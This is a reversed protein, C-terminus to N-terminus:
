QIEPIYQVDEDIDKLIEEIKDHLKYYYLADQLYKYADDNMRYKEIFYSEIIRYIGNAINDDDMHIEAILHENKKRYENAM